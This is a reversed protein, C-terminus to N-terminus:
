LRSAFDRLTDSIHEVTTLTREIRDGARPLGPPIVTEPHDPDIRTLAAEAEQLSRRGRVLHQQARGLQDEVTQLTQLVEGLASM